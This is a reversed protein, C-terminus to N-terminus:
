FPTSKPLKDMAKLSNLAVKDEMLFDLKRNIEKIQGTLWENFNPLGQKAVTIGGSQDAVGVVGTISVFKGETALVPEITAEVVILHWIYQAKDWVYYYKDSTSKVLLYPKNSKTTKQQVEKITLTPM